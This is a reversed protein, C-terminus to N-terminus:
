KRNLADEISWGLKYIRSRLVSYPVGSERSWEAMTMTKGNYTLYRNTRKNNAQETPTAWRCNDPTYDGNTDIRDISLEDNYGNAMAWDYFSQFDERWQEYM